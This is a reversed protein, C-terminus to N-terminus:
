LMNDRTALEPGESHTKSHIHLALTSLAPFCLRFNSGETHVPTDGRCRRKESM